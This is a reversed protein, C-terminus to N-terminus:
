TPRKHPSPCQVPGARRPRQRRRADLERLGPIEVPPPLLGDSCSPRARSCSALRRACAASGPHGASRCRSRRGADSARYRIMNATWVRRAARRSRNKDETRLRNHGILRNALDIIEPPCRYSEPATGGGNPLGSSRGPAERSERREVPLHGDDDAVVFLDAADPVILRLLDYQAKNTDRIRGGCVPGAWAFCRPRSRAERASAPTHFHLLGGFDLRNAAFWPSHLLGRLLPPVWAPTQVLLPWPVATTPSPSCGISSASCIRAIRPVLHGEEGLHSAIVDLVAIRDEDQTLLSFDPRLGLHSGHQRLVDAAFSHFTCLHARDGRQGRLRDVRERMEVAAKNTFTLALVSVDEREGLLRAVRCTLVLQRALVRHGALVLLPGDEWLVAKRQNENLTALDIAMVRRGAPAVVKNLVARIEATVGASGRSWRSLLLRLGERRPGTPCSTQMTAGTTPITPISRSGRWIRAPMFPAYIGDYGNSLLHIEPTSMRFRRLPGSGASGSNTRVKPEYKTRGSDDDVVCYWPIGLANAVKALLGVDSQSYQGRVGARHLSVQMARAAAPYDVGRDGGEVLLWCRAFLLEGRARRVHYNFKRTEEPSLLGPSAFRCSAM